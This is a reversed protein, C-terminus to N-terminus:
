DKEEDFLESDCCPCYQQNTNKLEYKCNSCYYHPVDKYCEYEYGGLYPIQKEKVIQSILKVERTAIRYPIYEVTLGKKNKRFGHRKTYIAKAEEASTAWVYDVDEYTILMWGEVAISCRYRFYTPSILKEEITVNSM